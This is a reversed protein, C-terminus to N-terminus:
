FEGTFGQFRGVWVTVVPRDWIVQVRDNDLRFLRAAFHSNGERSKWEKEKSISKEAAQWEKCSRPTGLM